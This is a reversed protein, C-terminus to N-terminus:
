PGYVTGRDPNNWDRNAEVPNKKRHGGQTGPRDGPAPGGPDCEEPRHPCRPGRLKKHGVEIGKRSGTRIVTIRHGCEECRGDSDTGTQKLHDREEVYDIMDVSM